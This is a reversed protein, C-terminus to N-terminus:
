GVKRYEPSAPEADPEPDSRVPGAATFGDRAELHGEIRAVAVKIDVVDAAVGDVKTDIKADLKQYVGDVKTDIKTDLRIYLAIGVGINVGIIAAGTGLVAILNLLDPEM